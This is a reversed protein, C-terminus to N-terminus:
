KLAAGLSHQDFTATQRLQCTLIKKSSSVFRGTPARLRRNGRRVGMSCSASETGGDRSCLDVTDGKSIGHNLGLDIEVLCQAFRKGKPM